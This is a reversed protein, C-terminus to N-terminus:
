AWDVIRIDIEGNGIPHNGTAENNDYLYHRVSSTDISGLLNRDISEIIIMM